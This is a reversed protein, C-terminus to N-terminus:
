QSRGHPLSISSLLLQCFKELHERNDYGNMKIQINWIKFLSPLTSNQTNVRSTLKQCLTMMFLLAYIHMM